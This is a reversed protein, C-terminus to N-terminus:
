ESRFNNRQTMTLIGPATFRRRRIGAGPRLNERAIILRAGHAADDLDGDGDHRQGGQPRQGPRREIDAIPQRQREDDERRGEQHPQEHDLVIAAVAREEAALQRVLPDAADGAHERERREAEPALAVGRVVGGAAIEFAAAHAVDIRQGDRFVARQRQEAAQAVPEVAVRQHQEDDARRDLKDHQMAHGHAHPAVAPLRPRASHRGVQRGSRDGARQDPGDPELGEQQHMQRDDHQGGRDADPQEVHLVLEFAGGPVVVLRPVEVVGGQVAARMVIQRSQQAPEGGIDAHVMHMVEIAADRGIAQAAHQAVMRFEVVDAPQGQPFAEAAHAEGQPVFRM